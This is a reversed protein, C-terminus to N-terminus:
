KPSMDVPHCANWAVGDKACGGCRVMHVGGEIYVAMETNCCPCTYERLVRNEAASAIPHQELAATVADFCERCVPTTSPAARSEPSRCSTCALATVLTLLLLTASRMMDEKNDSATSAGRSRRSGTDQKLLPWAWPGAARM